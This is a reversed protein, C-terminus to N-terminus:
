LAIAIGGRPESRDSNRWIIIGTGGEELSGGPVSRQLIGLLGEGSVGVQGRAVDVSSGDEAVIPCNATKEFLIRGRDGGLRCRIAAIGEVVETKGLIEAEFRRPAFPKESGGPHQQVGARIGVGPEPGGALM